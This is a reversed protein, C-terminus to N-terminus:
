WRAWDIDAGWYFTGKFPTLSQILINLCLKDCYVARLIKMYLKKLM